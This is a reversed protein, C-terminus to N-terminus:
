VPMGRQAVAGKYVEDRAPPESEDDWCPVWSEGGGSAEVALPLGGSECRLGRQQQNASWQQRHVERSSWVGQQDLQETHDGLQWFAAWGQHKMVDQQPQEQQQKQHQQQDLESCRCSDAPGVCGKWPREVRWGAWARGLLRRMYFARAMVLGSERQGGQKTSELRWDRLAQRLMRVKRGALVREVRDAQLQGDCVAQREVCAAQRWAAFSGAVTIVLRRVRMEFMRPEAYSVEWWTDFCSRLLQRSYRSALARAKTCVHSCEHWGTLATSLTARRQHETVAAAAYRLHIVHVAHTRLHSFCM